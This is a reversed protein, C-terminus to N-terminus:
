AAKRLESRFKDCKCFERTTLDDGVMALCPRSGSKGHESELHHCRGCRVEPPNPNKPTKIPVRNFSVHPPSAPNGPASRRPLNTEM